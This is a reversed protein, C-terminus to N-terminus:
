SDDFVFRGFEDRLVSMNRGAGSSRASKGSTRVERLKTSLSLTM